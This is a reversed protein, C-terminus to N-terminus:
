GSRLCTASTTTPAKDWGPAIEDLMGLYDLGM